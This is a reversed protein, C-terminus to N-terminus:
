GEGLIVENVDLVMIKVVLECYLIGESVVILVDIFEPEAFWCGSLEDFYLHEFIYLIM